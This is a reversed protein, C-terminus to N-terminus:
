STASTSSASRMATARLSTLCCRATTASPASPRQRRLAHGDAADGRAPRGARLKHGRDARGAVGDRRGVPDERGRRARAGPDGPVAAHGMGARARPGAESWRKAPKKRSWGWARLYRGVTQRSLRVEFLKFILAGVAARSWLVGEGLELQDPNSGAMARVVREQQAESLAMQEGPRRGRRGERLGEMGGVRFRASWGAVTRLGVGLAEAVQSHTWGGELLQVGRARLAAQASGSLSRADGSESM